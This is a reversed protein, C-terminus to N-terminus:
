WWSEKPRFVARQAAGYQSIRWRVCRREVAVIARRGLEPFRRTAEDRVGREDGRTARAGARGVLSFSDRQPARNKAKGLRLGPLIATASFWIASCFFLKIM